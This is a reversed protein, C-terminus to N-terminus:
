GHYKLEPPIVDDLSDILDKRKDFLKDFEEESSARSMLDEILNLEAEIEDMDDGTFMLEITYINPVPPSIQVRMLWNILNSREGIVSM